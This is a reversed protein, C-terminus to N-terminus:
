YWYEGFYYGLGLTILDTNSTNSNGGVKQVHSWAFEGVLCPTIDYTIGLGFTPYFKNSNNSARGSLAFFPETITGSANVRDMLYAVGGKAYVNFNFELPLIGKLVLDLVDTKLRGSVNAFLPGGTVNDVASESANTTMNSFKSWGFETAFNCNLQYGMYLRGAFGTDRSSSGFAIPTVNSYGLAGTILRNMDASTFGNQHVNGWGIQAGLYFGDLAAYSNSTFFATSLFLSVLGFLDKKNLM